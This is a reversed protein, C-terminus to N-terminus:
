NVGAQNLFERASKRDEFVETRSVGEENPVSLVCFWGDIEAIAGLTGRSKSNHKRANKVFIQEFETPERTLEQNLQDTM